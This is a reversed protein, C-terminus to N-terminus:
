LQSLNRFEPKRKKEFADAIARLIIHVGKLDEFLEDKSVEVERNNHAIDSRKNIFDNYDKWYKGISKLGLSHEKNVLNFSTCLYNGKLKMSPDKLLGKITTEAFGSILLVMSRYFESIMLDEDGPRNQNCISNYISLYMEKDDGSAEKAVIEAEKEYVSFQEHILQPVTDIIRAIVECNDDVKAQLMSRSGSIM